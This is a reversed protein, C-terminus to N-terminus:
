CTAPYALASAQTPLNPSPPIWQLGTGEWMEKRIWGEVPLVLLDPNPGRALLREGVLYRALEGATLGYVIPIPACGVFSRLSDELVPGDVLVGGLPNPRDLVVFPIGREAAAEMCLKMTSIYTYFRAGVDQIDYLLIDVDRLMERTPKQIKGYLSTVPIGTASDFGDSVKEGAAAAGRVGHEPGFMRVVAVGRSRLADVLHIGEATLATHNVILAVRKGSVLDLRAKLLFDTGVSVAQATSAQGGILTFIILIFANRLRDM